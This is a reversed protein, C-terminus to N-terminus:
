TVKTSDTLAPRTFTVFESVRDAIVDRPLSADVILKRGEYSGIIRRYNAEVDLLKVRNEYTDRTPRSVSMRHVALEVPCELFILADPAPFDANLRRVLAEEQDTEVNYALSSFMYRTSIVDIREALLKFVGNTPNNLHDFRDAAFLYAFQRDRVEREPALVVRGSFFLRILQGVPGSSPESTLWAQRGANILRESLLNAQTSSGSCDLGEFVIFRGPEDSNAM